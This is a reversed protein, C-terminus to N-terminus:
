ILRHPSIYLPMSYHTVTNISILPHTPPTVTFPLLSSLTLPHTSPAVTVTFSIKYLDTFLIIQLYLLMNYHM